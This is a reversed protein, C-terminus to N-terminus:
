ESQKNASIDAIIFDLSSEGCNAVIHARAEDKLQLLTQWSSDKPYIPKGITVTVPHPHLILQDGRLMQRSGQIAIPCIPTGTEVAMKFAGLKFPRIGEAYSFTGEPFIFVSSGEKLAEQVKNLDQMGKQFNFKDVSIFRLKTLFTKLIPIQFLEKKGLIRVKASIAKTLFIGDLYSSHNAVFIMPKNVPINEKGKTRIKCGSFTCLFNVWTGFLLPAWKNPTILMGIWILPLSGMVIAAIYFTFLLDRGKNLARVAQLALYKTVLQILQKSFSSPPNHLKNELYLQKCANRQLKGSSTKPIVRSGVLVIDDPAINLLETLSSSITQKIHEHNQEVAEAVIVLKETGLLTDETGFSIVNGPRVGPITSIIKEIETPYYNRGGKIILDKKRGTIFLEGDSIYALDGTNWWGECYAAQTAAPNNFYCQMSSPGKFQLHGTQREPVAQNNEDVIRIEMEPLPKGCSVFALNANQEPNVVNVARHEKEFIQRDLYEIKPLRGLPPTTLGLSSEALGYVPMMAEPKFGYPAFKECFRKITKPNVTEAGNIAIRWHSLDLGEISAPEIKNTCLEYAFNPGASITARHHHIAWLWKQPSKLFTLPSFAILPTGFYLSGLWNGILGLDHYLPLWSVVSDMAGVAIAQGYARINSLINHHTLVIGKPSSTTGSTYQILATENSETKIPKAMETGILDDVMAISQLSKVQGKLLHCLMEAQKFGILLRANANNLIHAENKAYEIIQNLRIPPYLPVPICRAILIGFFAYFFDKSTPLMIAVTEGPEIGRKTISYAIKQATTLLESYTLIEDGNESQLIVHPRHPDTKAYSLLVDLLSSASAPITSHTQTLTYSSPTSINTKTNPTVTYIFRYVDELTDGEVLLRDPLEIHFCKEIRHFLEAKGISDIGLHHQFSLHLPMETYHNRGSEALFNKVLYTFQLESHLLEQTHM